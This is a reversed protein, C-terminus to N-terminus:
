ILFGPITANKESPIPNATVFGSALNVLFLM